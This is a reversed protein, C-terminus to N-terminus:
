PSFWWWQPRVNGDKNESAALFAFIGVILVIGGLIGVIAGLVPHLEFWSLPKPDPNYIAKDIHAAAKNVSGAVHKTLTWINHTENTM